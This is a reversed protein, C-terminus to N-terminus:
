MRFQHSGDDRFINSRLARAFDCVTEGRTNFSFIFSSPGGFFFEKRIQLCAIRARGVFDKSGVSVVSRLRADIAADNPFTIGGYTVSENGSFSLFVQLPCQRLHLDHRNRSRSVIWVLFVRLLKEGDHVFEQRSLLTGALKQRSVGSQATM